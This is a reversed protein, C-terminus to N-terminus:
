FCQVLRCSFVDLNISPTGGWCVVGAKCLQRSPGCLAAFSKVTVYCTSIEFELTLAFRVRVLLFYGFDTKSLLLRRKGAGPTIVVLGTIIGQVAGICSPKGFFVTDLVMWTLMSTATAINTQVLVPPCDAISFMRIDLSFSNFDGAAEHTITRVSSLVLSM